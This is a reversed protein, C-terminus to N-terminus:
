MRQLEHFSTASGTVTVTGARTYAVIVQGYIMMDDALESEEEEHVVIEMMIKVGCTNDFAYM